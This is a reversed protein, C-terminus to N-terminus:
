PDVVIFTYQSGLRETGDDNVPWLLIACDQGAQPVFGEGNILADDIIALTVPDSGSYGGNIFEWIADQIEVDTVPGEPIVDGVHHYNIIYNVLDWDEDNLPDPKDSDTSYTSWLEVYGDQPIPDSEVCWCPWIWDWVNYEPNYPIGTLFADFTTEHLPGPTGTWDCLAVYSTPDPINIVKDGPPECDDNWQLLEISLYATGTLGQFRNDQPIRIIYDFFIRDCYHIQLPLPKDEFAYWMYDMM